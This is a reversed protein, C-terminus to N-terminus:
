GRQRVNCLYINKKVNGFIEKVFIQIQSMKKIDKGHVNYKYISLPEFCQRKDNTPLTEALGKFRGVLRLVFLDQHQFYHNLPYCNHL